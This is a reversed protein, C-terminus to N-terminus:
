DHANEASQSYQKFKIWLADLILTQNLKLNAHEAGMADLLTTYCQEIALNDLQQAISNLAQIRDYNILYDFSVGQKLQRVDMLLAFWNHLVDTLNYTSVTKSIDTPLRNRQVIDQIGQLVVDRIELYKNKFLQLARLPAANAIRWLREVMSPDSIHESLWALGVAEEEVICPVHQCRSLITLPLQHSKASTLLFIVDGLPEELTKLLANRAANNMKEACQIIVVQRHAIKPTQSVYEILTRIQDIKIVNNEPELIYCDPHNHSDLLRCSACICSAQKKSTNCLLVHTLAYALDFKGIGTKGSLILAKPLRHADYQRILNKWIKKQWPYIQM